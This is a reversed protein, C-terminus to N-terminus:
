KCRLGAFFRDEDARYRDRDAAAVIWVARVWGDGRQTAVAVYTTAGLGGPALNGGSRAGEGETSALQAVLKKAPQGCLTADVEPEFTLKGPLTARLQDLTAGGTSLAVRIPGTVIRMSHVDDRTDERLDGAPVLADLGLEPITVSHLHSTMADEPAPPKIPAADHRGNCGIALALLWARTV